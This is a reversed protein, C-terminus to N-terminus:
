RRRSGPALGLQHYNQEDNGAFPPTFANYAFVPDEDRDAVNQVAPYELHSYGAVHLSSFSPASGYPVSADSSVSNAESM